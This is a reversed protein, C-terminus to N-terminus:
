QAISGNGLIQKQVKLLDLITVKGDKNVDAATTYTSSYSATRLILKQVRLLDLITIVGDGNVDGYIVVSYTKSTGGSTISVTYGSGFRGSTKARGNADKIVVNAGASQKKVNNVLTSVDTGLRIGSIYTNNYRVGIKPMIEAVTLDKISASKVINVKYTNIDGNQAKVSITKSTTGSGLSVNGTGSVSASSVHPTASISATTANNAVYVTYEKTNRNFGSVTTGNVKLDKLANIPSGTNPKPNNGMNGSYVPIKFIFSGSIFGHTNYIGRMRRGESLHAEINQQYQHWFNNMDFKQNYLTDQGANIYNKAIITAGGTISKRETNWGERKARALGNRVNQMSDSSGTADINFYNYYGEYGSVKGTVSASRGGGSTIEQIARASLFYPSTKSTTGADYFINTFSENKGDITNNKMFTQALLSTIGSKTHYTSNFSLKEFMFIDYENLFNRPDLYYRTIAENPAYWSSGGGSFNTSFKNTNYDYTDVRKWGDNTTQILNKGLTMEQAVMNDFTTSVRLAEFGWNPYKQHLTKLYPWYSEPFGSNKLQKEFDGNPDITATGGDVVVYASCVYGTKGAYSVQYWSNNNPCDSNKGANMNLITVTAAEPVDALKNGQKNPSPRLLVGWGDNTRITGTTAALVNPLAIFFSIFIALYLVILKSSNNNKEM